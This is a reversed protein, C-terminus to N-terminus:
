LTRFYNKLLLADLELIPSECVLYGGIQREKLAKLLEQWNFASSNTKDKKKLATFENELQPIDIGVGVYDEFNQLFTLHNREGKESFNIASVHMHLKQLYSDGLSVEIEDFIRMFEDYSNHKGNTRAYLHAFDVCFRLENDTFDKALSILEQLDGFQTPKGTLEPALVIQAQKAPHGKFRNEDYTAYIKEFAKKVFELTEESTRGQYFAAHFTVSKAGALGGIFISDSIRKISGYFIKNDVSALNIYYPGHVTLNVGLKEAEKDLERAKNEPMKVGYVFELEMLDLGLENIRQMGSIATKTQSSLPIGGVGISLNAM